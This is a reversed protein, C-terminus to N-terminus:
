SFPTHFLFYDHLSYPHIYFSCHLSGMRGRRSLHRAPHTHWGSGSPSLSWLLFSGLLHHWSVGAGEHNWSLSFLKSPPGLHQPTGDRSIVLELVWPKCSICVSALGIHKTKGWIIMIIKLYGPSAPFGVNVRSNQRWKWGMGYVLEALRLAGSFSLMLGSPSEEWDGRYQSSHM